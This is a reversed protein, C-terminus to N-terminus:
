IVIDHDKAYARLKDRLSHDSSELLDDLYDRLAGVDLSRLMAKVPGVAPPAVSLIRLGIGVLAMADLPRGAMEGCLSLPVNAAGCAEALRRLVSLMVPSLSDYRNTMRPNGRDCAFLYQQLDNSGISMFDIRPLLVPLQWLLSPVEMMVGVRVARPLTDGQAALRALERDLLRRAADFESVEAIMPFMISVERGAAARLIARLQQRLMAPRDLGIRIARWGLAPNREPELAFYPLVKDDGVDLTRFVVPKGGAEDLVKTYLQTQADVDPYASRVMFPIETRYLGIGDAGTDHLHPLDFLLGCNLMISVAVGDRTVPPQACIEAYLRKRQVRAQMSRAYAEQVDEAPRVFVQGHDGDVIVPDLPEVRNLVDVCQGVVPIDFARAVIAVHSFTSGEGLVLARLRRPDYDLLEAPGLSRAVLVIDDPLTGADAASTKGALHQLLRNTLDELDALRERIYPDIMHSMRARTDDQVRRVAADASLGNRIAERIRSLWGRDEAFMRYTELIDQHEGAGAAASAALMADIAQHMGALAARLRELELDPDDAVMQRVTLQPRHLVALGMALGRNLSVGALRSPLLPTDGTSSSIEQASVLEGAAVLEAVVMAVTQLTEVDEEDFHRRGKHQIVLVGRVRGGRLIPVGMLAQFPDEGTEPRYAFSPHSQANALAIPRAHAAIEGVIGEGVRLRTRHVAAPNLGHTAFLELVEGARMVYCSCVDASMGHAILKVIKDLRMQASGSGAMVDRLGALLRRSDASRPSVGPAAFSRVVREMDPTEDMGSTNSM